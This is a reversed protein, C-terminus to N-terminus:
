EGKGKLFDEVKVEVGEDNYLTFNVCNHENLMRIDEKTIKNFITYQREDILRGQAINDLNHISLFGESIGIDKKQYFAEISEERMSEFYDVVEQHKAIEKTPINVEIMVQFGNDADVDYFSQYHYRLLEGQQINYNDAIGFGRTAYGVRVLAISLVLAIAYFLLYKWDISIKRKYVFTAVIYIVLLLLYLMFASGLSDSTSMSLIFLCIIAYFHIIFPYAFFGSSVQEAREAKRLVFHRYLGYAAVVGYVILMLIYSGNVSAYHISNYIKRVIALMTVMSMNLPSFYAILGEGIMMGVSGAILNYNFTQMFILIAVAIFNYAAIMVIGDFLNNAVLFCLSNVLIFVLLMLAGFALIYLYITFNIKAPM